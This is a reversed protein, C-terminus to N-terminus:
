MRRMTPINATASLRDRITLRASARIRPSPALIEPKSTRFDVLNESTGRDRFNRREVIIPLQSGSWPTQDRSHDVALIFAHTTLANRARIVDSKSVASVGARSLKSTIRRSTAKNYTILAIVYPVSVQVRM